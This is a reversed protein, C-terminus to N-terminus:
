PRARGYADAKIAEKFAQKTKEPGIIKSAWEVLECILCEALDKAADNGHDDYARLFESRIIADAKASMAMYRRGAITSSSPFRLITAM